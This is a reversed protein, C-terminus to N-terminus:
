NLGVPGNIAGIMVSNGYIQIHNSLKCFLHFPPPVKGKRKEYLLLFPSQLPM